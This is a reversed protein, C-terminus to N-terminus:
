CVVWFRAWHHALLCGHAAANRSFKHGCHGRTVFHPTRMVQDVSEEGSVYLVAGTADETDTDEASDEDDAEDNTSDSEASPPKAISM